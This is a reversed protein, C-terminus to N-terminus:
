ACSDSGDGLWLFRLFSIEVLVEAIGALRSSIGHVKKVIWPISSYRERYKRGKHIMWKWGCNLPVYNKMSNSCFKTRENQILHNLPWLGTRSRDIYYYKKTLYHQIFLFVGISRYTDRFARSFYAVRWDLNLVSGQFILASGQFILYLQWFKDKIELHISSFYSVVLNGESTSSFSSWNIACPPKDSSQSSSISASIEDTM